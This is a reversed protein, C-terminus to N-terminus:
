IEKNFSKSEQIIAEAIKGSIPDYHDFSSEFSGTSSTISRLDIAYRLLEAQPVQAKIEEIGSGIASQGLIRGRRSSLDSMIDGVYKSDVWVSLNMVPELLIPNAKRMADSLASRAALQFALDSSDVPHYKGDLVTVDIDTVPYLALVGHEMAQHVGKEVGPIYNKPIAGGFVANTFKFKQGRPLPQVSLVVKAYQGHGGTQKKHTFEAEAKNEITERYAIRPVSTSFDIGNDKKIRDLIINLQLEGMGSLVNQKTEINYKFTVTRDTETAKALQENMKDESKKDSASVAISYIPEPHRLPKFPLADEKASLTDSTFTAALKGAICIDGACASKIEELKKGICHYLKGIKEKKKQTINFVEVDSTLTGSLIKLYSLKGSFQDGSTKIVLASFQAASQIPVSLVSGDSSLLTELRELPSPAIESFFDLVSTLGSNCLPNGAFIPVVKNQAFAIKLGKIIESDSLEGEDIFKVLLDDDGEAASGAVVNRANKYMDQYEAPIPQSTELGDNSSPCPYFKAHLVDIVGKYNSGKGVPISLPTIEVNFKEHIDKNASQVDSREEEIHNMFVIRPKNRRDLDRWLKVTEIRAGCQSDVLVIAM